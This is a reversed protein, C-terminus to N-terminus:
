IIKYPAEAFVLKTNRTLHWDPYIFISHKLLMLSHYMLFDDYFCRLHSDTSGVVQCCKSLYIFKIVGVSRNGIKTADASKTCLKALFTLRHLLPFHAPTRTCRRLCPACVGKGPIKRELTWESPLWISTSARRILVFKLEEATVPVRSEGAFRFAVAEAEVDVAVPAGIHSYDTLMAKRSQFVEEYVTLGKIGGALESWKDNSNNVEWWICVHVLSMRLTSHVKGSVEMM